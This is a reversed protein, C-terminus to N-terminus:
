GSFGTLTILSCPVPRSRSYDRLQESRGAVAAQGDGLDGVGGESQGAPRRRSGLPKGRGSRRMTQQAPHSLGVLIARPQDIVRVGLCPIM